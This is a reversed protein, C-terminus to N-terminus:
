PAPVCFFSRCGGARVQHCASQAATRDRFVGYVTSGTGTMSCIQAGLRRLQSSMEAVIPKASEVLPQFDNELVSLLGPGDVRGGRLSDIFSRYPTPGTLAGLDLQGYAWATSM